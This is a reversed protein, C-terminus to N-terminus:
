GTWLDISCLAAALLGAPKVMATVEDAEIRMETKPGRPQGLVMTEERPRRNWSVIRFRGKPADGHRSTRAVIPLLVPIGTEHIHDPRM